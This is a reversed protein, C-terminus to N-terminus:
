GESCLDTAERGARCYDQHSIINSIQIIKLFTMMEEMVYIVYTSHTDGDLLGQRCYKSKFNNIRYYVKITMHCGVARNRLALM